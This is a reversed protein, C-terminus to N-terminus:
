EPASLRPSHCVETEFGIEDEQWPFLGVTRLLALVFALIWLEQEMKFYPGKSCDGDGDLHRLNNGAATWKLNEGPAQTATPWAAALAERDRAGLLSLM